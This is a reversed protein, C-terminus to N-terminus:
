CDMRVKTIRKCTVLWCGATACIVTSVGLRAHDTVMM